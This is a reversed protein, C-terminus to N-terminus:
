IVTKSNRKPLCYMLLPNACRVNAESLFLRWRRNHHILEYQDFAKSEILVVSLLTEWFLKRGPKQLKEPLQTLHTSVAKVNPLEFQYQQFGSRWPEALGLTGEQWSFEFCLFRGSGAHDPLRDGIFSDFVATFGVAGARRLQYADCFDDLVYKYSRDGEAEVAREFAKRAKALKTGALRAQYDENRKAAYDFYNEL